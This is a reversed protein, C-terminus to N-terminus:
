GEAKLWARVSNGLGHGLDAPLKAWRGDRLRLAPPVGKAEEIGVIEQKPYRRRGWLGTIRLAEAELIIRRTLSDILGLLGFVALAVFFYTLPRLGHHQFQYWTGALFLIEAGAISGLIWKPTRFVRRGSYPPM